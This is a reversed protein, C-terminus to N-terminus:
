LNGTYNDNFRSRSLEFSNVTQHFCILGPTTDYARIFEFGVEKLLKNPALNQAYPECILKQLDFNEFYNSISQRLLSSGVGKRRNDGKWIHLHMAASEGYVIKNINSHGVAEGNVQWIVYHFEKELFPKDIENVLLEAWEESAPLKSKEAGLSLLYDPDADVFYSVIFAIDSEQM